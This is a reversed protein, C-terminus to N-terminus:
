NSSTTLIRLLVICFLDEHGAYGDCIPGWRKGIFYRKFETKREFGVGLSLCQKM